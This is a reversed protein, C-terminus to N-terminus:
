VRVLSVICCHMSLKALHRGGSSASLHRGGGLAAVPPYAIRPPLRSLRAGSGTPVTFGGAADTGATQVRNEVYGRRLLQRQEATLGSMDGGERLMAYFADRYEDQMQASTREEDGEPNDVGLASGNAGNPRNQRRREEESTERAAQREEREIKKDLADLKAMVADHRQEAETIRTTDTETEISDLISRAEAVLTGRQEYYQQLIM